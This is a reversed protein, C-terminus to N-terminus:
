VPGELAQAKQKRPTFECCAESCAVQIIRLRREKRGSHCAGSWEACDVCTDKEVAALFPDM